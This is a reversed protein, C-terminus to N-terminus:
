RTIDLTFIYELSSQFQGISSWYPSMSSISTVGLPLNLRDVIIVIQFVM